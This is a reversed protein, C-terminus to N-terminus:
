KRPPVAPVGGAFAETISRPSGLPTVTKRGPDFRLARVMGTRNDLIYLAEGGANIRATVATYDNDKVVFAAEAVRPQLLNAATLIVASLSLVGIIFTKKDLAPLETSPTTPRLSRGPPPGASPGRRRTM